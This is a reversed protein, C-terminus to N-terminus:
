QVKTVLPKGILSNIEVMYRNTSVGTPMPKLTTPNLVGEYLVFRPRRSLPLIQGNPTITVVWSTTVTLNTGDAPFSVLKSEVNNTESSDFIVGRPLRQLDEVYIVNTTSQAAQLAVDPSDAVCVGYTTYANELANTTDRTAIVLYLYRSNTVAYNRAMNIHDAFQRVGSGLATARGIHQMATLGMGALAGIISLVVLLEVLSFARSGTRAALNKTKTKM